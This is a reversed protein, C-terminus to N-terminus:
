KINNELKTKHINRNHLYMSAKQIKKNCIICEVITKYKEPRTKYYKKIYEQMYKARNATLNEIKDVKGCRPKDGDSKESLKNESDM